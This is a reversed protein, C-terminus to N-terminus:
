PAKEGVMILNKGIPPSVFGEAWQGIPVVFKDYFRVSAPQLQRLRLVRHMFWWPVVGLADFYMSLRIDFGADRCKEELDSASYRRFHGLERDLGSMLWKVAPVFILVRGGPALVDHIAKLEGADDEIHELVNIYVVSDPTCLDRVKDLSERFTAQFTKPRQSADLSALGEALIRHMRASPEVLVLSEPGTELIMRSFSGTGAGVEVVHKGLYPRLVHLIWRHYNVAFATAELDSGEYEPNPGM